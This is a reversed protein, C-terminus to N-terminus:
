SLDSRPPKARRLVRPLVILTGGYLFLSLFLTESRGQLFDETVLKVAGFAMWPYLVWVLEALNWRRGCWALALAAAVILATRGAGAYTRNFMGSTLRIISWCLLAALIAPAVRARWEQNQRRQLTIAYGAAAALAGLPASLLSTAVLYAAGHLRLTYGQRRWGLWTAALGLTTWLAAQIGDLFVLAGGVATLILGFTAYSHFNRGIAPRRALSTFSVLYCAAGAVLSALGVAMIGHTVRMVAAIALAVVAVVQGVEFWAIPLRRILTRTVTSAFYIAVLAVPIATVAISPIPAYGEPLGHPRAVLYMLLFACFDAALAIIWRLGLARDRCAGYEVLAAALSLAIAFPVPDLTAVILAIASASGALATVGAILSLDRRWAVLQGLAVFLALAAAAGAPSLTHFRVTSEWLLPGAILSATLGQLVIVIRNHSAIRVSSLLWACAYLLGILTGALQPLLAAETVARLLYAGAIGLLLRGLGALVGTSLDAPVEAAHPGSGLLPTATSPEAIARNELAQVRRRLDDVAQMLEELQHTVEQTPPGDM